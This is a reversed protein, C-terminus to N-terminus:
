SQAPKLTAFGSDAKDLRDSVAERLRQYSELQAILLHLRFVSEGGGLLMSVLLLALLLWLPVPFPLPIATTSFMERILFELLKSASTALGICLSVLGKTRAACTLDFFGAAGLKRVRSLTFALHRTPDRNAAPATELVLM